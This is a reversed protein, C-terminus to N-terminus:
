VSYLSPEARQSINLRSVSKLLDNYPQVQWQFNYQAYALPYDVNHYLPSFREVTVHWGILVAIFAWNNLLSEIIWHGIQTLSYQNDLHYEVIRKLWENWVLVDGHFWRRGLFTNKRYQLAWCFTRMKAVLFVEQLSKVKILSHIGLKCVLQFISHHNPM